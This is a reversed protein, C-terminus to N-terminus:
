PWLYLKSLTFNGFVASEASVSVGWSSSSLSANQTLSISSAMSFAWSPKRLAFFARSSYKSSSKHTFVQRKQLFLFGQKGGSTYQHCSLIHSTKNLKYDVHSADMTQNGKSYVLSYGWVCAWKDMNGNSIYM